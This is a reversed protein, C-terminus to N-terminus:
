KSKYVYDCDDNSCKGTFKGVYMLPSTIGKKDCEPCCTIHDAEEFEFDLQGPIRVWEVWQVDDTGNLITQREIIWCVSECDATIRLDMFITPGYDKLITLTEDSGVSITDKGEIEFNM